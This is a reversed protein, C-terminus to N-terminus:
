EKTELMFYQVWIENMNVFRNRRWLVLCVDSDDERRTKKMLSFAEVMRYPASYDYATVAM